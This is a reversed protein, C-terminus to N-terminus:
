GRGLLNDKRILGWGSTSARIAQRVLALGVRECSSPRRKKGWFWECDAEVLARDAREVRIGSGTRGGGSGRRGVVM